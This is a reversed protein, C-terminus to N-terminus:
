LPIEKMDCKVNYIYIYINYICRARIEDMTLGSCDGADIENM